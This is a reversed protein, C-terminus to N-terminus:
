EAVCPAVTQDVGLVEEVCWYESSGVSDAYERVVGARDDRSAHIPVIEVLHYHFMKRLWPPYPITELVSYEVVSDCRVPCDLSSM